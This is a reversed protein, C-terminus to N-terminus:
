PAVGEGQDVVVTVDPKAAARDIFFEEKQETSFGAGRLAAVEPGVSTTNTLLKIIPPKDLDVKTRLLACADEGLGPYQIALQKLFAVAEDTKMGKPLKLAPMGTREGIVAGALEVSKRKGDTLDDRAVAWWTRLQIFLDKMRAEVPKITEDRHHEITRISADASARIDDVGAALNLYEAITTIAQELTAPADIRAAKRRPAM